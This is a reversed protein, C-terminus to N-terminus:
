ELRRSLYDLLRRPFSRSKNTDHRLNIPGFEIHTMEEMQAIAQNIMEEAQQFDSPINEKEKLPIM